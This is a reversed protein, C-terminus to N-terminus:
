RDIYCAQITSTTLNLGANFAGGAAASENAHLAITSSGAPGINATVYWEVSSTAADFTAWHIDGLASGSLVISTSAVTTSSFAPPDWSVSACKYASIATGGSGITLAGTQATAGSNTSTGSILIGGSGYIVFQDTGSNNEVELANDGAVESKLKLSDFNTVGGLALSPSSGGFAFGVVVLIAIGYLVYRDYKNM